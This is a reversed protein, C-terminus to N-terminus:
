PCWHPESGRKESIHRSWRRGQYSTKYAKAVEDMVKQLAEPVFSGGYEGFYGKEDPMGTTNLNKNLLNSM